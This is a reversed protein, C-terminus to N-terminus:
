NSYLLCFIVPCPGQVVDPDQEPPWGPRQHRRLARAADQAPDRLPGEAVADHSCVGDEGRHDHVAGDAARAADGELHHYEHPAAQHAQSVQPQETVFVFRNKQNDSLFAITLCFVCTRIKSDVPLNTRKKITLCLM